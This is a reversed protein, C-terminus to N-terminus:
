LDEKLFGSYAEMGHESLDLGRMEEEEPVRLGALVKIIWWALTSGFAIFIGVALIGVIQPVLQAFGGGLILGASPGVKYLANASPSPGVAFLGVALTGWIGCILHVSITGVPDDIRLRDMLSISYFVLIGAIAGIAAAAPLTVWAASASIAVLGALIGYITMPLSPKGFSRWAALLAAVSGFAAALNTTLAIHSISAPDATMRMGTTLGMWGLWLILCGQTAMSLNHAPIPNDGRGSYRGFRPGLLTAGMLAAWGAVSHIATSGAFDWFRGLPSNVLWGGGWIWHGTTPYLLGAFILSFLLFAKFKIREAVAGSVITAAVGALTLQFLFKAELPVGLWKLAKFGGRYLDGTAPSNDPGMLFWGQLGLLPTGDAFMLGFGIGWYVITALAFVILTKALMNVANKQRCFGTKLLSFGVNMFFVLFATLLVWVTDLGVKLDPLTLTKTQAASATGWCFVVLVTVWLYVPWAPSLSKPRLLRKKM